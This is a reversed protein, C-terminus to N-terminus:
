PRPGLTEYLELLGGSRHGAGQGGPSPKRGPSWTALNSPEFQGRGDGSVEILIWGHGDMGTQAADAVENTIPRNESTNLTNL